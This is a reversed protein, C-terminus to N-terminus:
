LFAQVRTAIVDNHEHVTKTTNGGKLSEMMQYSPFLAIDIRNSQGTLAEAYWKGQSIAELKSKM